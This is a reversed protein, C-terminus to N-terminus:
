EEVEEPVDEEVEVEAEEEAKKRAEIELAAEEKKIRDLEGIAGVLRQLDNQLNRVTARFELDTILRVEKFEAIKVQLRQYEQQLDALRDAHASTIAIFMFVLVLVIIRKKM